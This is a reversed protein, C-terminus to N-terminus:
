RHTLATMLLRDVFHEKQTSAKLSAQAARRLGEGFRKPGWEAIIEQSKHGMKKCDFAGHAVDELHDSLEVLNDPDFTYGNEGDHVLETACGCRESVLVPLGAAMAENVVLGWQERISAHVFAGALGYYIPLEEYPEFGPLHVSDEVGASAIAHEMTPREPGEGLLVLDWKPGSVSRRYRSFAEILKPLNKKPVFRASALFFRDPLEYKRRLVEANRRARAAGSSFHENDVVDYGLFIHEEPMGLRQLYDRHAKGGVFGAGCYALLRTKVWERWWVREFDHATTESMMVAPTGTRACWHLAALAGPHSWGPIAVVDPDRDTLVEHVGKWMRSKGVTQRSEGPFLTTRDVERSTEVEEWGYEASDSAIEIASLSVREAAAQLRARHYPGLRDFLVAVHVLRSVNPRLFDAVRVSGKGPVPGWEECAVM